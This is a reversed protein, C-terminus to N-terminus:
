AVVHQGAQCEAYAGAEAIQRSRQGVGEMLGDLAAGGVEGHGADAVGHGATGVLGDVAQQRCQQVPWRVAELRGDAREDVESV